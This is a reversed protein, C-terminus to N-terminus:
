FNIQCRMQFIDADGGDALDAFVYNWSVMTNPNLYWNVGFTFDQLRGGNISGDDLDLYSYRAALEWAGKGGGPKNSYNKKPIVRGFLGCERNYPRHEGTLFYSGFIYFGQMSADRRNVADVLTQMYEAQVSLPGHVWAAELGIIDVSKAEFVGTDVFFPAIHSEPHSRFRQQKDDPTRHSYSIGLHLLNEQSEYWPLYTVRGTYAYDGDGVDNGYSDTHNKFVGVAWTMRKNHATNFIMAGTSRGPFFATIPLGCEMFTTLYPNTNCEMTIPELFQGVRLHGVVPLDNLQIYVDAFDADGGALDYQAKFSINDYMKGSISLRAFRFETGDQLDGVVGKMDKDAFWAWDNRVLVGIGLQFEKDATEFKLGNKWYAKLTDPGHWDDYKQELNALRKEIEGALQTRSVGTPTSQKELYDLRKELMQLKKALLKEKAEDAFCFNSTIASLLLVVVIYSSKM